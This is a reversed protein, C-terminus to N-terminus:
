RSSKHVEFETSVLFASLHKPSTHGIATSSRCSRINGCGTACQSMSSAGGFVAVSRRRARSMGYVLRHGRTAAAASPNPISWALCLTDRAKVGRHVASGQQGNTSKHRCKFSQGTVSIFYFSLQTVSSDTM